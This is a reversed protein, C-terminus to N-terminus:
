LFSILLFYIHASSEHLGSFDLALPVQEVSGALAQAV